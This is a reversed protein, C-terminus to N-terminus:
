RRDYLREFKNKVAEISSIATELSLGRTELKEITTSLTAFNAAIFSLSLKIEYNELLKKCEVISQAETEDLAVVVETVKELNTAYYMGADLWTGWRTVVPSPPLPIDPSIEKFTKVRLPAKLFISKGSSILRNVDSYNYCILEAVRHLGHALCTVHVMKPFLVQLGKMAKCMYPAADTAVIFVNNYLVQNPWLVTLSDNFFAAITSHNVSELQAM